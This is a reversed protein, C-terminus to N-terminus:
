NKTITKVIITCSTKVANDNTFCFVLACDTHAQVPLLGGSLSSYHDESLLCKIIETSVPCKYYWESGMMALYLHTIQLTLTGCPITNIM